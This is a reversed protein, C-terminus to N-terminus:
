APRPEPAYLVQELAAAVRHVAAGAETDLRGLRVIRAASGRPTLSDDPTVGHDWASDTLERWAALTRVAPDPSHGDLRRARVRTRWLLPSLPLVVLALAG